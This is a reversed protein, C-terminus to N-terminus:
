TALRFPKLLRYGKSGAVKVIPRAPHAPTASQATIITIPLVAIVGTATASSRATSGIIKVILGTSVRQGLGIEPVNKTFMDFGFATNRNLLWKVWYPRINREWKEFMPQTKAANRMISLAQEANDFKGENYAAHFGGFTTLCANKVPQNTSSESNSTTIRSQKKYSRLTMVKTEEQSNSDENPLDAVQDVKRKRSIAKSGEGAVGNSAVCECNDVEAFACNTCRGDLLTEGEIQVVVCEQFVGEGKLCRDCPTTSVDARRQGVVCAVHVRRFDLLILADDPNNFHLERQIGLELIRNGIRHTDRPKVDLIQGLKTPKKGNETEFCFGGKAIRTLM